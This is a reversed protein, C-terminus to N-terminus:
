ALPNKTTKGLFVFKGRNRTYIEYVMEKAIEEKAITKCKCSVKTTKCYNKFQEEVKNIKEAYEEHIAKRAKYARPSLKALKRTENAKYAAIKRNMEKETMKHSRENITKLLKM